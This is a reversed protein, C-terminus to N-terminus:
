RRLFCSHVVFLFLCVLELLDIEDLQTGSFLFGM